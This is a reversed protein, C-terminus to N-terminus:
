TVYDMGTWLLRIIEVRGYGIIRYFITNSGIAVSSLNDAIDDRDRSMNNYPNTKILRYIEILRYQYITTIAIGRLHLSEYMIKDLDAIAKRTFYIEM